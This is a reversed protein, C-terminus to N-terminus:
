VRCAVHLYCALCMVFLQAPMLEGSRATADMAKYEEVYDKYDKYKKGEASPWPVWRVCGEPKPFLKMAARRHDRSCNHSKVKNGFKEKGEPDFKGGKTKERCWTCM